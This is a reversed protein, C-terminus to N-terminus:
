RRGHVALRNVLLGARGAVRLRHGARGLEAVLCGPRRTHLLAAVRQQLRHELALDGHRGLAAVRRERVGLHARRDLEHDRLRLLRAARIRKMVSGGSSSLAYLSVVTAMIRAACNRPCWTYTACCCSREQFPLTLARAVRMERVSLSSSQYRACSVSTRASRSKGAVSIRLSGGKSISYTALVQSSPSASRWPARTKLAGRAIRSWLSFNAMASNGCNVTGESTLRDIRSRCANTSSCLFTTSLRSSPMPPAPM